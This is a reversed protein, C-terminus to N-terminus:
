VLPHGTVGLFLINAHIICVCTYICLAIYFVFYICFVFFFGEKYMLCNWLIILPCFKCYSTFPNSTLTITNLAVTLFIETKDHRDLKNSSSVLTSIACTTTFGVEMRDYGHRGQIYAVIYSFYQQFHHEVGDVLGFGSHRSEGSLYM